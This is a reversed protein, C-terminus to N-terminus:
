SAKKSTDVRKNEKRNENKRWFRQTSSVIGRLVPFIENKEITFFVKDKEILVQKNVVDFYMTFKKLRKIQILEQAQINM